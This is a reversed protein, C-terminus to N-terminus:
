SCANSYHCTYSEGFDLEFAAEHNIRFVPPTMVSRLMPHIAALHELAIRVLHEDDHPELRYTQLMHFAGLAYDELMRITMPLNTSLRLEHQADAITANTPQELFSEAPTYNEALHEAIIDAVENATTCKPSAARALHQAIARPTPQDFVLVAPLEMGTLARLSSSLHVASISNIGAQM